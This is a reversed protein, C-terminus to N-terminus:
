FLKHKITKTNLHNINNEVNYFNLIETSKTKRNGSIGGKDGSINLEIYKDSFVQYESLLIPCNTVKMLSNIFDQHSFSFGYKTTNYYPPDIYIIKDHIDNKIVDVMSMIETNYCKIGKAYKCINIVRQELKDIEPQMPNVPSRRSSTPTPQWYDRFSTNKWVNHERWIQKGGFSSAQLLLYVYEEDINADQKSLNQIYERVKSKDRPVQKSYKLFKDIDFTGEGVSKYFKGYSGIDCMIIQTPKIGRNLLEVTIAGSGCCLDYYHVESSKDSLRIMYDVIQQALRQKGGQYTCPTHLEM